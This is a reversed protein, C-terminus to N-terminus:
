PKYKQILYLGLVIMGGTALINTAFRARNQESLPNIAEGQAVFEGFFTQLGDTFGFTALGQRDAESVVRASEIAKAEFIQPNEQIYRALARNYENRQNLTWDSTRSSLGTQTVYDDRFQEVYNRQKATYSM